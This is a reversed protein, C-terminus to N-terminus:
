ISGTTHQELWEAIEPIELRDTSVQVAFVELEGPLATLKMEIRKLFIACVTVATRKNGDTFPHDRIINRLNVAAKEFVSSYQETGFIEQKPAEVVSLLRNDDRVGHSGGYDEIIQFHLRLIEELGLYAANM